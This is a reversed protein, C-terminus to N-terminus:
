NIKPFCDKYAPKPPGFALDCDINRNGSYIICKGNARNYEFHSCGKSKYKNCFQRCMELNDAKYNNELVDWSKECNGAGFANCSNVTPKVCIKTHHNPSGIIRNCTDIYDQLEIVRYFSCKSQVKSFTYFNWRGSFQKNGLDQCEIENRQGLTSEILYKDVPRTCEGFASEECLSFKAENKWCQKINQMYNNCAPRADGISRSASTSNRQCWGELCEAPVGQRLCCREMSTYEKEPARADACLEYIPFYSPRSCLKNSSRSYLSEDNPQCFPLCHEPLGQDICCKETYTYERTPPCDKLNCSETKTAPGTCTGGHREMRDKTRISIKQGKGCPASCKGEVWEGWICDLKPEFCFPDEFSNWCCGKSECRSKTANPEPHCDIKVPVPRESCKPDTSKPESIRNQIATSNITTLIEASEPIGLKLSAALSRGSGMKNPIRNDKINVLLYKAHISGLFFFLTISFISTLHFM